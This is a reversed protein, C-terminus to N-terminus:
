GRQILEITLGDPDKIGAVRLTGVTVPERSIEVGRTKLYEVAKDVDDVGLAFKRCGIQWQETSVPAPNKVSFVEIVSGNLEIFAIEELPPREAKWKMQIKFGLIGTYFDIAR